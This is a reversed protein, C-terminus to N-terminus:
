QNETDLDKEEPQSDNMNEEYDEVNTKRLFDILVPRDGTIRNSNLGLQYEKWKQIRTSNIERQADALMEVSEKSAAQHISIEAQMMEHELDLERLLQNRISTYSKKAEASTRLQELALLDDYPGRNSILKVFIPSIEILIFLLLIFYSVVAVKQDEAQLLSMSRFRSLFGKTRTIIMQNTTLLQDRERQLFKIRENNQEIQPFFRLRADKLESEAKEYEAKKERFVSGKGVIGTGGTGEAEAIYMSFLQDRRQTLEDIKGQLSSNANVLNEIESFQTKLVSDAQQRQELQSLAMRSEIEREFLRMEIPKSVVIAILISLILRPFAMVLEKWLMKEKRLSAVLYWDLFFIISGWFAGFAIAAWTTEFIMWIAYGGSIAALVGTFFVIIGIGLYVNIETPCHKLLYLRAGSCWAFFRSIFNGKWIDRETNHNNNQQM